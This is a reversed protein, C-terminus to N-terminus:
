FTALQSSRLIQDALLTQKINERNSKVQFAVKGVALEQWSDFYENWDATAFYNDLCHGLADISKKFFTLMMEQKCNAPLDCSAFFNSSLSDGSKNSLSAILLLEQPYTFGLVELKLEQAELEKLFTENLVQCVQDTLIKSLETGPNEQLSRSLESHM